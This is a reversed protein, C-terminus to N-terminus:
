AVAAACPCEPHRPQLCYDTLLQKARAKTAEGLIVEGGVIDGKIATRSLLQFLIVINM